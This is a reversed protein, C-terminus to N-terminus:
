KFYFQSSKYNFCGDLSSAINKASFVFAENQDVVAPWVILLQGDFCSDVYQEKTKKIIKKSM